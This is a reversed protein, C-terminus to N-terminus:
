WRHWPVGNQPEKIWTSSCYLNVAPLADVRGHCPNNCCMRCSTCGPLAPIHLKFSVFILTVAPASLPTTIHFCLGSTPFCSPYLLRDQQTRFCVSSIQICLLAHFPAHMEVCPEEGEWHEQESWLHAGTSVSAAVARLAGGAVAPAGGAMARLLDGAVFHAGHLVHRGHHDQLRLTGHDSHGSLAGHSGNWALLLLLLDLLRHLPGRLLLLSPDTSM